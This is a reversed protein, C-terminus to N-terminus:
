KKYSSCGSCVDNFHRSIIINATTRNTQCKSPVYSVYNKKYKSTPTAFVRCTSALRDFQLPLRWARASVGSRKSFVSVVLFKVITSDAFLTYFCVFARSFVLSWWARTLVGLSETLFV